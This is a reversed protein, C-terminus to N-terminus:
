VLATTKVGRAQLSLCAPIPAVTGDLRVDRRLKVDAPGSPM